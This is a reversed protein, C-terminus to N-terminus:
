FILPFFYKKYIRRFDTPVKKYKKLFILTEPPNGADLDISDLIDKEICFTALGNLKRTVNIVILVQFQCSNLYLSAISFDAM